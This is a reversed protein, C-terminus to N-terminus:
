LAGLNVRVGPRVGIADAVDRPLPEGHNIAPSGKKLRYDERAANVFFPNVAAGDIWLSRREFGTASKLGALSPYKVKCNGSGLSWTIVSKPARPSSRYYGNSDAAAIMAKSSEKTDCNSAEVFAGGATNGFLNNKVVNDRTRGTVGKALWKRDKNLRRTDKIWLNRNNGAMTNNYVKAGSANSVMIGIGNDHSLNSAIIAKHSIEFFIGIVKNHRAINHVVKANTVALDLWLGTSLNNEIINNRVIVGDSRTIKAGGAAWTIAFNEVNNHSIINNELLLRDAYNAGLGTRGNYSFTNGRMTSNPNQYTTVGSIGNWAFTNNELTVNAAGLVIGKDAYHAFGLGRITSGNANWITLGTERATAEVTKGRPNSGIYLKNGRYDVYFTGPSVQSRDGVQKLAQGNVFVMDRNGALPHKPDIYERGMNRPFGYKWGDERWKGGDAVWGEVVVSGKLWPKEGPYAQLTLKKGVKSSTRYTGGRLVITTGPRASKLAKALTIPSRASRGSNSNKGDPSVFIANQPVKYNTKKIDIASAVNPIGLTVVLLTSAVLFNKCLPLTFKSNM